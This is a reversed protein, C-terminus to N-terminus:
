PILLLQASLGFGLVHSVSDKDRYKEQWNTKPQEWREVIANIDVRDWILDLTQAIKKGKSQRQCSKSISNVNVFCLKKEQCYNRM